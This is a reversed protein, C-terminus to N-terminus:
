ILGRIFSIFPDDKYGLEEAKAFAAKAEANRHLVELARGKYFWAIGINPDIQLANDFQVM